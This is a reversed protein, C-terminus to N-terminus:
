SDRPLVETSPAEADPEVEATQPGDSDVAVTGEGLDIGLLAAVQEAARTPGYGDTAFAWGPIQPQKLPLHGKGFWAGEELRVSETGSLFGPFTEVPFSKELAQKMRRLRKAVEHNDLSEDHELALSWVSSRDDVFGGWVHRAQEEGAERQIAVFYGDSLGFRHDHDVCLQLVSFPHRGRGYGRAAECGEIQQLEQVKDAYFVRSAFVETRDALRIGNAGDKGGESPIRAQLPVGDIKGVLLPNTKLRERLDGDLKSFAGDLRAEFLPAWAQELGWVCERLVDKRAGLTPTKTWLPERFAKNRFEKLFNGRRIDSGFLKAWLEVGPGAEIAPLLALSRSGSGGLWFVSKGDAILAATLALSAFGDGVVIADAELRKATM